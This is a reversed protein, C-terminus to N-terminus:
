AKDVLILRVELLDLLADLELAGDKAHLIYKQLAPLSRAALNRFECATKLEVAGMDIWTDFASGSPRKLIVARM